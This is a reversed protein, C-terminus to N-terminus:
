AADGETLSRDAVLLKKLDETSKFHPKAVGADTALRILRARESEGEPPAAAQSATMKPLDEGTFPPEVISAELDERWGGAEDTPDAAVEAGEPEVLEVTAVDTVAFEVPYPPRGPGAVTNRIILTSGPGFEVEHAAGDQTTIRFM